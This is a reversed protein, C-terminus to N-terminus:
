FRSILFFVNRRFDKVLVPAVRRSWYKKAVQLVVLFHKYSLIQLADCSNLCHEDSKLNHEGHIIM